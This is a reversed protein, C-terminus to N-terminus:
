ERKWFPATVEQSPVSSPSVSLHGAEWTQVKARGGVLQLSRPLDRGEQAETEGDTGCLTPSYFGASVVGSGPRQLTHHTSKRWFASVNADM